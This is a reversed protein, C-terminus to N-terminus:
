QLLTRLLFDLSCMCHLSGSSWDRACEGYILLGCFFILIFFFFLCFIFLWYAYFARVITYMIKSMSQRAWPWYHQWPTTGLNEMEWRPLLYVHLICCLFSSIGFYLLSVTLLFSLCSLICFFSVSFRDYSPVCFNSHNRHSFCRFVFHIYNNHISNSCFCANWDSHFYYCHLM